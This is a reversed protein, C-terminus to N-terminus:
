EGAEEDAWHTFYGPATADLLDSADAWVGEPNRTGWYAFNDARRNWHWKDGDRDVAKKGTERIKELTINEEAKVPTLRAAELIARWKEVSESPFNGLSYGPEHGYHGWKANIAALVQEDTVPGPEPTTGDPYALVRIVEIADHPWGTVSEEAVAGSMYVGAWPFLKHRRRIFAQPGEYHSAIGWVVTGPKHEPEPRPARLVSDSAYMPRGARRPKDVRYPYKGSSPVKKVTGYIGEDIVVVQEGERCEGITTEIWGADRALQEITKQKNTM